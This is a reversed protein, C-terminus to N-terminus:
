CHNQAADCRRHLTCPERGVLDELMGPALTAAGTGDGENGDAPRDESM